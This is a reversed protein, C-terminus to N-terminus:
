LFSSLKRPLFGVAKVNYKSLLRSIGCFFTNHLFKLKHPLSDSDCIAKARHALTSLVALWGGDPSPSSVVNLYLNTHTPKRHVRHRFSGDPRRHVNTDLFPIHGDTEAEM